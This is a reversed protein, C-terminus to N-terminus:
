RDIFRVSMFLCIMQATANSHAAYQTAEPVPLFSEQVLMITPLPAEASPETIVLWM